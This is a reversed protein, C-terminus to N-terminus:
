GRGSTPRENRLPPCGAGSDGAAAAIARMSTHDEGYEAHLDMAANRIRTKATLDEGSARPDIPTRM